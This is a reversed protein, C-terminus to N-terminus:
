LSALMAKSVPIKKTEPWKVPTIGLPLFFIGHVYMMRIIKDSTARLDRGRPNGNDVIIQAGESGSLYAHGPSTARFHMMPAGVPPQFRYAEWPIWGARALHNALNVVSASRNWILENHNKVNFDELHSHKARVYSQRLVESVFEACPVNAFGHRPATAKVAVTWAGKESVKELKEFLISASKAEALPMFLLDREAYVERNAFRKLEGYIKGWKEKQAPTLKEPDIGHNLATGFRKQFYSSNNVRPRGETHFSKKYDPQAPSTVLPPLLGESKIDHNEAITSAVYVGGSLAMLKAATKAFSPAFRIKVDKFFYNSTWVANGDPTRIKLNGVMSQPSVTLQTGKPFTAATELIGNNLTLAAEPQALILTTALAANPFLGMLALRVLSFRPFIKM